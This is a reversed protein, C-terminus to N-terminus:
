HSLHLFRAIIIIIIRLAGQTTTEILYTYERFRTIGLYVKVSTCAYEFVCFLLQVNICRCVCVNCKHHFLCLFDVALYTFTVFSNM